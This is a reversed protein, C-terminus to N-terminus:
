NWKILKFFAITFEAEFYTFLGSVNKISADTCEVKIMTKPVLHLM